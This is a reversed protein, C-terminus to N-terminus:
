EVDCPDDWLAVDWSWPDIEVSANRKRILIPESETAPTQTLGPYAKGTASTLSLLLNCKITIIDSQPKKYIRKEM